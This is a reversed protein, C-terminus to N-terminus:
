SMIACCRNRYLTRDTQHITYKINISINSWFEIGLYNIKSTIAFTKNGANTSRSFIMINKIFFYKGQFHCFKLNETNKLTIHTTMFFNRNLNSNRKKMHIQPFATLIPNDFAISQFKPDWSLIGNLFFFLRFAIVCLIPKKYM